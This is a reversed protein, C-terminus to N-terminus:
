FFKKKKDWICIFVFIGIGIGSILVALYVYIPSYRFEVVHQGASLKVGALADAILTIDAKKGDVYVNWGTEYPISTYMLGDQKATITGRISKSTSETVNLVEDKLLEYAHDFVDQNLVAVYINMDGSRGADLSTRASFVDGKKLQGVPFINAKDIEYSQYRGGQEISANKEEHLNLNMYVYAGGDEPMQYYFVFKEDASKDANESPEYSYIGYDRRTVNLNEHAVYAIDLPEFVDEAIGTAVQLLKNQKEFPTNDGFQFDAMANEVMFGIPLYAQNEYACVDGVRESEVLYEQSTIPGNRSMLYKLNLFTNNVPTSNQYYYWLGVDDAVLGINEYFDRMNANVTSTFIDFGNYGYLVSPNRSYRKTFEARYFDNEENKEAFDGLIQQVEDYMEPYSNRASVRVTEPSSITMPILELGAVMALIFTFIKKSIKKNIFLLLVGLYAIMLLLNKILFPWLEDLDTINEKDIMRDAILSVATFLYFIACAACVFKFDPLSLSDIHTYAKYALMILLFSFMFTYRYPIMNPVHFGHWAFDLMNINISAFYILVLVMYVIKERVTIKKLNYFILFFVICIVGCYINPLGEKSTPKVYALFNALTEAWGRIVSWKTPQNDQKVTNRLAIMTPLTVVASMMISLASFLIINKLNGLLEKMRNKHLICQTLFYFATFFCVLLGIYYQVIIAAALSLTYLKYKKESVLASIGVTVLPFLAFTDLWMINWYYGLVWSCLAYFTSFIITGYDNKKNIKNLSFACFVGAMGIKILTILAFAERLLDEPFIVFLLNLPSALYYAIVATFGSGLGLRWCYLLSEGARIKRRLEVLFPYYQHWSDIVLIQKNGFPYVKSAAFAVGMLIFPVAFALLYICIAPIQIQDDQLERSIYEKKERKM